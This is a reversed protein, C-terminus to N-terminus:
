QEKEVAPWVTRGLKELLASLSEQEAHSLEYFCRSVTKFHRGAHERVRARGAETLCILFKRRDRQDLHRAILGEEELNRILSSITNRSTGLRESIESPNLSCNVEDQEVYLLSLLLRYQAYSLGAAALSAESIQYLAHAVMRMQAMLRITQADTDPSLSELFALWNARKQTDFPPIPGKKM